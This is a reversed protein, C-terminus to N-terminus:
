ILHLKSISDPDTLYYQGDLYTAVWEKHQPAAALGTQSHAAPSLPPQNRHSCDGGPNQSQINSYSM